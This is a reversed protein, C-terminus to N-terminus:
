RPQVILTGLEAETDHDEIPFRGTTKAEFMLEGPEGPQVEEELDYGHVHFEIPHDSTIQLNVQQGETVSVEDPSMTNGNIALAVQEEQTEGEDSAEPASSEPRLLFFLVVLAIFTILVVVLNRGRVKNLTNREETLSFEEPLM